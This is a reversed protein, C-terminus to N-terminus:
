FGLAPPIFCIWVTVGVIKGYDGRVIKAACRDIIFIPRYVAGGPANALLGIIELRVIQAEVQKQVGSDALKDVYGREM